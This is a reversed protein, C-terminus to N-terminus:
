HETGFWKIIYTPMHTVIFVYLRSKENCLSIANYVVPSMHCFKLVAVDRPVIFLRQFPGSFIAIQAGNSCSVARGALGHLLGEDFTYRPRARFISV